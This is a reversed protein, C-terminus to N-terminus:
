QRAHREAAERVMALSAEPDLAAKLLGEFGLSFREVSEFEEIWSAGARNEVFVLPDPRDGPFSLISFPGISFGQLGGELPVVRLVVNPRKAMEALHELQATLIGPETPSRHLVSEDVIVDLRTPQDPRTLIAQRALRLEVLRAIERESRQRIGSRMLASAYGETQLLGPVVVPEFARIEVAGQEYGIYDQTWKAILKEFREWWGEAQSREVADYYQQREEKSVDYLPLLVDLDEPLVPRQGTELYSLRAGSWGCREAADRQSIRQDVRLGRLEQALWRRWATPSDRSAM